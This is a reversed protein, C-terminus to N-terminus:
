HDVHVGPMLKLFVSDHMVLCELHKFELWNPMEEIPNAKIVFGLCDDNDDNSFVIDQVFMSTKGSMAALPIVRGLLPKEDWGPWIWCLQYWPTLDKLSFTHGSHYDPPDNQMGINM